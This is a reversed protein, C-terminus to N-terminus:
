CSIQIRIPRKQPNAQSQLCQKLVAFLGRIDASETKNGARHFSKVNIEGNRVDTPVPEVKFLRGPYEGPKATIFFKVKDMGVM